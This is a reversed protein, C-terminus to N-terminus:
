NSLLINGAEDRVLDAEPQVWAQHSNRVEGSSNSTMFWIDGDRCHLEVSNYQWNVVHANPMCASSSAAAAVGDSEVCVTVHRVTQNM